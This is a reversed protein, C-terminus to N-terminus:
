PPTQAPVKTSGIPTVTVKEPSIKRGVNSDLGPIVVEVDHAKSDGPGVHVVPTMTSKEILLLQGTVTVEVETPSVKWKAPDVGGDGRIEVALGSMVRTVLERALAVQVSVENRAEVDVGAPLVLRTETTFGDSANDLSVQETKLATLATLTSEAGSIKVTAPSAKVDRVVYGHQPLGSTVPNIEVLKEIRKSFTVHLTRPSVSVVNFGVPVGRILDSTIAIDGSAAKRLDLNV